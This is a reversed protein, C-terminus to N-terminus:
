GCPGISAAEWDVNTAGQVRWVGRDAGTTDFAFLLPDNGSDNITFVVGPQAFSNAAASNEILEPRAHLRILRTSAPLAGMTDTGVYPARESRRTMPKDASSCAVTGSGLVWTGILM